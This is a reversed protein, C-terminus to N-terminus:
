IDGNLRYIWKFINEWDRIMQGFDSSGQTVPSTEVVFSNSRNFAKQSINKVSLRVSACVCARVCACVLRDCYRPKFSFSKIRPDLLLSGSFHLLNPEQNFITMNLTDGVCVQYM